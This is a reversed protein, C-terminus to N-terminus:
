LSAILISIKGTALRSIISKSLSIVFASILSHLHAPQDAGKNNWFRRLCTKDCQPGNSVQINTQGLLDEQM